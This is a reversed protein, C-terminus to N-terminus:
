NKTVWALSDDEEDEDEMFEDSAVENGDEDDQTAEFTKVLGYPSFRLWLVNPMEVEYGFAKRWSEIVNNMRSSDCGIKYHHHQNEDIELFVLVGNPLLLVVDIYACTKAEDTGDKLKMCEFDIMYQVFFEGRDPMSANRMTPTKGKRFGVSKHELKDVVAYEFAGYGRAVEGGKRHVDKNHYDLELQSAFEVMCVECHFVVKTESGNAVLHCQTRTKHSRLGRVSKLQVCCNPCWRRRM